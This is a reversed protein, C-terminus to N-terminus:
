NEIAQFAIAQFRWMVPGRLFLKLFQRCSILRANLRGAQSAALDKLPSM